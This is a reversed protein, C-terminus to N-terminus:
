IPERSSAVCDIADHYVAIGADRGNAFESIHRRYARAGPQGAFLGLAHRTMHHLKEGSALEKNMYDAYALAVQKAANVRNNDGFLQHDVGALLMPNHYAERGIMVGDVHQLHTKCDDITQIGGNLIFRQQPFDRKLRYVAPYDLPPIERNQKPSLGKLWAKRAHVIFVNCDAQRNTDIFACLAEYSDVNDVGIRCKITVPVSVAERMAHICDAVREPDLMLSAGFAGSQVRDSPCGVNLNVECYGAAESMQAASALATPDNGGLQVAVPTEVANFRLLHEADGHQLASATIMETYLLARRTLLRWFTRCHRDSWDM